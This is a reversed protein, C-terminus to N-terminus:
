ALGVRVWAWVQTYHERLGCCIENSKRCKGLDQCGDCTECYPLQTQYVDKEVNIIAQFITDKAMVTRDNLVKLLVDATITETKNLIKEAGVRRSHGIGAVVTPDLWEKVDHDWYDFNTIIIYDKPNPGLVLKHKIGDPDRALITGKKVGSIINYEPAAYPTSSFKEVADEYNDVAEMTKRKIWGSPVRKETFIHKWLDSLGLKKSPFRTNIEISYGNSGRRIGTLVNAYGAIMQATYLEKGGKSFVGM